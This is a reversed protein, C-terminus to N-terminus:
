LNTKLDCQACNETVSLDFMEPLNFMRAKKQIKYIPLEHLYKISLIKHKESRM